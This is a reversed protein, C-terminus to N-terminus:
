YYGDYSGKLGDILWIFTDNNEESTKTSLGLPDYWVSVVPTTLVETAQSFGISAILAITAFSKM